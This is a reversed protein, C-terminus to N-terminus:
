PVPLPLGVAPPPGPFCICFSTLDSSHLSLTVLAGMFLGWDATFTRTRATEQTQSNTKATDHFTKEHLTQVLTSIRAEEVMKSESGRLQKYASHDELSLYLERILWRFLNTKDQYRSFDAHVFITRSGGQENILKKLCYIFSSKGAGRYGSILCCTAPGNQLAAALESPSTDANTLFKIDLQGKQLQAFLTKNIPLDM